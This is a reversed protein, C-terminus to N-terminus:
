NRPCMESRGSEHGYTHVTLLCVLEKSALNDVFLMLMVQVGTIMVFLAGSKTTASNLEGKVKLRVLLLDLREM